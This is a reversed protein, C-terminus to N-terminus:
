DNIKDEEPVLSKSIKILKTDVSNEEYMLIYDYETNDFHYQDIILNSASNESGVQSSAPEGIISIVKERTMGEKVDDISNNQSSTESKNRENVDVAKPQNNMCGCCTVMMLLFLLSVIKTKKCKKSM